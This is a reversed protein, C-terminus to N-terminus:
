HKENIQYGILYVHVHETYWNYPICFKSIIVHSM